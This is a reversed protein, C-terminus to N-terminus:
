KKAAKKKRVPNKSRGIVVHFGWSSLAEPNIANKVLLFQKIRSILNYLTQPSDITQGADIGMARRWQEMAILAAEQALEAEERKAMATTMLSEFLAMDVMTSDNLPSNVGLATHKKWIDKVLDNMKHPNGTYIPIKLTTRAM